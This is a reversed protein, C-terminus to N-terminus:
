EGNSSQANKLINQVQASTGLLCFYFIHKIRPDNIQKKKGWLTGKIKKQKKYKVDVVVIVYNNYVIYTKYQILNYYKVM